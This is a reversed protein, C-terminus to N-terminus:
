VVYVTLIKFMDIQKQSSYNGGDNIKLQAHWHRKNAIIILFVLSLRCFYIAKKEERNLYIFYKYGYSHSFNCNLEGPSNCAAIPLYLFLFFCYWFIRKKQDDKLLFDVHLVDVMMHTQINKVVVFLAVAAVVVAMM